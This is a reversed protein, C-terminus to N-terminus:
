VLCAALGAAAADTGVSSSTACAIDLCRLESWTSCCIASNFDTTWADVMIASCITFSEPLSGAELTAGTYEGNSDPQQDNDASFDLVKLMKEPNGQSDFSRQKRDQNRTSAKRGEMPEGKGPRRTEIPHLHGFVVIASLLLLFLTSSLAM